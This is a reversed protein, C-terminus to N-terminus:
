IFRLPIKYKNTSTSGENFGSIKDDVAAQSCLKIDLEFYRSMSSRFNGGDPVSSRQIEDTSVASDVIQTSVKSYTLFRGGSPPFM